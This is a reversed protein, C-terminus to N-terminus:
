ILQLEKQNPERFPASLARVFRRWVATGPPEVAPSSICEPARCIDGSQARAQVRLSLM